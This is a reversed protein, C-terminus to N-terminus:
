WTTWTESTNLETILLYDDTRKISVPHVRLSVLKANKQVFDHLYDSIPMTVQRTLSDTQASRLVKVSATKHFYTSLKEIQKQREATNDTAILQKFEKELDWVTPVQDYSPLPKIITRLSANCDNLTWMAHPMQEPTVYDKLGGLAITGTEVIEQTNRLLKDLSVDKLTKFTTRLLIDHFASSFATTFASGTRLVNTYVSEGRRVSAVKLVGCSELFLKRLVLKRIDEMFVTSEAFGTPPPPFTNRCDAIVMGFRVGKATILDAVNDLSLPNKEYGNLQFSPFENAPLVKAKNSASAASRSFMRSLWNNSTAAVTESTASPYYGLGSYYFLIIDNPQTKLTQIAQKAAEANFNRSNPSLYTTQLKYGLGWGITEVIKTMREQDQLSMMGFQKDQLDAVLVVHLTQACVGLPWVLMLLLIRISQM